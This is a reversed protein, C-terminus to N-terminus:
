AIHVYNVSDINISCWSNASMASSLTWLIFEMYGWFVWQQTPFCIHFFVTSGCASYCITSLLKRALRCIVPTEGPLPPQTHFTSWSAPTPLPPRLPLFALFTPCGLLGVRPLDTTWSASAQLDTSYLVMVQTVGKLGREAAPLPSEITPNYCSPFPRPVVKSLIVYGLSVVYASWFWIPGPHASLVLGQDEILFHFSVGLPAM